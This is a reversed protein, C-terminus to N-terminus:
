CRKKRIITYKGESDVEEKIIVVDNVKLNLGKIIATPMYLFFSKYEKKGVIKKTQRIKGQKEM